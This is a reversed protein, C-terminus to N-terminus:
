EHLQQPNEEALYFFNQKNVCGSLHFHTEDTLLIIVDDSLIGILREAVTSHNAMDRDSLEQVVVM